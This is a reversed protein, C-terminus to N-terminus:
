DKMADKVILECLDAYSIGVKEAEEPNLFYAGRKEFEAKVADYVGDLVIVNQETACIMGNDFTKSHM